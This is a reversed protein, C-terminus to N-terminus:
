ALVIDFQELGTFQLGISKSWHPSRFRDIVREIMIGDNSKRLKAEYRTIQRQKSRSKTQSPFDWILTETIEVGIRICGDDSPRVSANVAVIEIRRYECVGKGANEPDVTIPGPRIFDHSDEM